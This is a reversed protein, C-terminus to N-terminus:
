IHLLSACLVCLQDTDCSTHFERQLLHRPLPSVELLSPQVEQTHDMPFGTCSCWCPRLVVPWLPASWRLVCAATWHCGVVVVTNLLPVRICSCSVIMSATGFVSIYPCTFGDKQDPSCYDEINSSMWAQVGIQVTGAVVAAVVQCFFMSRPPVKMYHSLKLNSTFSLGQTMANYGWTKFMMMAIPRGPLAYAIILETTTSLGVKTNTTADIIGIPVIFVFASHVFPSVRPFACRLRFCGGITLALVFAWVPLQTDWVEIVVVGFVFM